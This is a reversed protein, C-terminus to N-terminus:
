LTQDHSTPKRHLSSHSSGQRNSSSTTNGSLLSRAPVWCTLLLSASCLVAPHVSSPCLRTRYSSSCSLFLSQKQVTKSLIFPITSSPCFFFSFTSSSFRILLTYSNTMDLLTFSDSSPVDNGLVQVILRDLAGYGEHERAAGGRRCFVSSSCRAIFM